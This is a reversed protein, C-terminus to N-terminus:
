RGIFKKYAYELVPYYEQIKTKGPELVFVAQKWTENYDSMKLPLDKAQDKSMKLFIQIKRTGGWEIGFVNLYGAKFGAYRKNYKLSLSWGKSKVFTDIEKIYELFAEASQKNYQHIYFENDYIEQGTVPKARPKKEDELSHLFIIQDEGDRWRKVEILDTEYGIRNVHDLTSKLISPAIILIRIKPNDWKISLNSPKNKYELWLNKISDPNNEAWIAYDLVQTIISKDVNTNKMEIICINGNKDIGIIDPIGTKNGGRVQRKILYIDELLEPTDFIMDEFSEETNFEESLLHRIGKNNKWFLNEM